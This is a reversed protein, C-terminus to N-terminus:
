RSVLEPLTVRSPGKVTVSSWALDCGEEWGVIEVLGREVARDADVRRPADALAVLAAAAPAPLEALVSTDLDGFVTM